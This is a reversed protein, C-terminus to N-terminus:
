NLEDIFENLLEDMTTKFQIKTINNYESPVNLHLKHQEKSLIPQLNDFSLDNNSENTIKRFWEVLKSTTEIVTGFGSQITKERAYGNIKLVDIIDKIQKESLNKLLGFTKCQIFNNILKSKSGRLVLCIKGIGLKCKVLFITKVIIFIPYMLNDMAITNIEKQKKCNDCKDCKYDVDLKEGFHNLIMKRRCQSLVCYRDMKSIQEDRYKRYNVDKISKLFYRSIKFDEKNYFLYCESDIGDRGARGVEQYYSEMDSPCGWHIVLHVNQDIGMGFAVTAVIINLEKKAFKDQINKRSEASLGAHYVDANYKNEKLIESIEEAKDRTKCYIISFDDNYKNLITFIGNIEKPKEQVYIILNPRDFSTKYVKANELALSKKIDDEVSKTATATLALIPIHYENLWEKLCALGMYDPRFDHGWTSICHAEDITILSLKGSRALRKIWNECNILYEPTLFMVMGNTETSNEDFPDQTNILNELLEEKIEQRKKRGINSHFCTVPIGINELKSKQDEMLSILPSVVIVVKNQDLLYPLQYCISKGYGTPLIALIDHKNVISKVIEHQLPKIKKDPYYKNFTAVINDEQIKLTNIVIKGSSMLEDNRKTVKVEKSPLKDNQKTVKVEKSSLEDDDFDFRPQRVICVNTPSSLKIKRTIINM